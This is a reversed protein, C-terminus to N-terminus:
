PEIGLSRMRKRCAPCARLADPTAHHCAFTLRYCHEHEPCRLAKM